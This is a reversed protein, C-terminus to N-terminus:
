ALGEKPPTEEWLGWVFQPRSKQSGRVQVMKTSLSCLWFVCVQGRETREEEGPQEGPVLDMQNKETDVPLYKISRVTRGCHICCCARATLSCLYCDSHFIDNVNEFHTWM